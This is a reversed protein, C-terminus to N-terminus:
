YGDDYYRYDDCDDYGGGHTTHSRGGGHGGGGGGGRGRGGGPYMGRPMCCRGLERCKQCNAMDHPRRENDEDDDSAVKRDLPRQAYPYVWVNCKQCAQKKDCYTAASSWRKNCKTCRLEGFVRHDTDGRWPTLRVLRVTAGGPAVTFVDAHRRLVTAIYEADQPIAAPKPCNTAILSVMCAYQTPADGSFDPRRRIFDDVANIYEPEAKEAADRRASVSHLLSWVARVANVRDGCVIKFEMARDACHRASHAYAEAHEWRGASLHAIAANYASCFKANRAQTLRADAAALQTDTAAHSRARNSADIVRDWDNAAAAVAAEKLAAEHLGLRALALVARALATSPPDFAARMVDDAVTEAQAFRQHQLHTHATGLVENFAGQKGGNCLQQAREHEVAGLALASAAEAHRIAASWSRQQLAKEAKAIVENFEGLRATQLRMLFAAHEDATAAYERTDCAAKRASDWRCAAIAADQGALAAYFLGRRADARAVSVQENTAADFAAQQAESVACEAAKFSRQQMYTRAVTILQDFLGQKAERRLGDAESKEITGQALRQAQEAHIEANQWARRQLSAASAAVLEKFEGSRATELAARVLGLAEEDVAHRSASTAVSRADQWKADRAHAASQALLVDLMTREAVPLLARQAGSDCLRAASLAHEAFACAYELSRGVLLAARAAGTLAQCLLANRERSSLLRLPSLWPLGCFGAEAWGLTKLAAQFALLADDFKGEALQVTGKQLEAECAATARATTAVAAVCLFRLGALVAAGSLLRPAGIGYLLSM